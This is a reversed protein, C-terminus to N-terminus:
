PYENVDRHTADCQESFFNTRGTIRRPTLPTTRHPPLLIGGLDFFDSKANEDIRREQRHYVGRIQRNRNTALTGCFVFNRDSGPGDENVVDMAIDAAAFHM